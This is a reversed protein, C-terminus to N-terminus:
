RLYEELMAIMRKAEREAPKINFGGGLFFNWIADRNQMFWESVDGQDEIWEVIAKDSPTVIMQAKGSGIISTSWGFIQEIHNSDLEKPTPPVIVLPFTGVGISEFPPLGSWCHLSYGAQAIEYLKQYGWLPGKIILKVNPNTLVKKIYLLMPGDGVIVWEVPRQVQNMIAVLIDYRKNPVARAVTIVRNAIKKVKYTKNFADIFATDVCSYRHYLHDWNGAVRKYLSHFSTSNITKVAANYHAHGIAEYYPWTRRWNLETKYFEEIESIGTDIFGYEEKNVEGVRWPPFWEIHAYHPVDYRKSIEDGLLTVSEYPSWVFDYERPPVGRPDEVQVLKHGLKEIERAVADSPTSVWDYGPM